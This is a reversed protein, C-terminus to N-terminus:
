WVRVVCWCSIIDPSLIFIELWIEALNFSVSTVFGFLAVLWGFLTCVKKMCTGCVITGSEANQYDAAKIDKTEGRYCKASICVWDGYRIAYIYGSLCVHSTLIFSLLVESITASVESLISVKSQLVDYPFFFHCFFFFISTDRCIQVSSLSWNWTCFGMRQIM